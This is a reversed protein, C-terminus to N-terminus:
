SWGLKLMTEAPILQLQFCPLAMVILLKAGVCFIPKLLTMCKKKITTPSNRLTKLMEVTNNRIGIKIKSPLDCDLLNELTNLLCESTLCAHLLLSLYGLWWVGVPVFKRAIETKRFVRKSILTCFFKQLDTLGNTSDSSIPEFNEPWSYHTTIDSDYLNVIEALDRLDHCLTRLSKSTASSGIECKGEGFLDVNMHNLTEGAICEKQCELYRQFPRLWCPWQTQTVWTAVAALSDGPWRPWLNLHPWEPQCIGPPTLTDTPCTVSTM